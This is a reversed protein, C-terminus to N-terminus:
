QPSSDEGYPLAVQSVVLFSCALLNPKIFKLILEVSHFHLLDEKVYIILCIINNLVEKGGIQPARIRVANASGRLRHGLGKPCQYITDKHSM